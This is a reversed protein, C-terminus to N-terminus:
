SNEEMYCWSQPPRTIPLPMDCDMKENDWKECACCDDPKKCPKVGWFDKMKVPEPYIHLNSIHWGFGPRGKLYGELEELRLCSASLLGDIPRCKYWEECICLKPPEVSGSFSTWVIDDVKDCTFWGIIRENMQQHSNGPMTHIKSSRSNTCYIYCKFPTELRPRTKRVEVTKEGSLIKECWELRISILVSKM